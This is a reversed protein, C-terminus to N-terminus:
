FEVYLNSELTKLWRNFDDYEYSLMAGSLHSPRKCDSKFWRLKSIDVIPAFIFSRIIDEDNGYGDQDNHFLCVRQWGESVKEQIFKDREGGIGQFLEYIRAELKKIEKQNESIDKNFDM